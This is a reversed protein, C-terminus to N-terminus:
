YRAPEGDPRRKFRKYTWQYQAPAQRIAAEIAANLAPLSRALDPDRIADDVPLWVIRFGRARPLREAYGLVVGMDRSAAMRAPLVMTLAAIGFFPAFEGGARGPVQDPLIGIIEKRRAAAYAARVGTATTPVLRNGGRERARTIPADLETMRLPRYFSTCPASQPVVLGMMEWQGLHPTLVIGAREDALLRDLHEKGRVERVLGRVKDLPWFWVAAMETATKGTEALCDRLLRERAAADLEPLCLELNRRAVARLDNPLRYLLWGLAAGLAHLASLPLVALMRLLLLIVRGRMAFGEGGLRAVM